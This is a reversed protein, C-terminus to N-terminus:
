VRMNLVPLMMVDLVLIFNSYMIHKLNDYALLVGMVFSLSQYTEIPPMVIPLIKDNM